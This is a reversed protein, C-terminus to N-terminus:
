SEKSENNYYYVRLWEKLCWGTGLIALACLCQCCTPGAEALGMQEDRPHLHQRNGQIQRLATVRHGNAHPRDEPDMAVAYPSLLLVLSVVLKKM